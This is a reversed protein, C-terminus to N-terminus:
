AGSTVPAIETELFEPEVADPNLAPNAEPDAYQVADTPPLPELPQPPKAVEEIAFIVWGEPRQALYRARALEETPATISGATEGGTNNPLGADVIWHKQKSM